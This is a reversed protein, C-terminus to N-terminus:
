HCRDGLHAATEALDAADVESDGNVDAGPDWNPDGPRTGLASAVTALDRGDVDGDGDGDGPLGSDCPSASLTLGIQFDGAGQVALTVTKSVAGDPSRFTLRDTEVTVEYPVRSSGREVFAADPWSPRIATEGDEFDCYGSPCLIQHLGFHQTVPAVGQVPGGRPDFAFAYALRGGDDEFLAYVRDNSLLYEEEGDLDLDVAQARPAPPVEGRAAAAAWRAAAVLANVHGLYNARLKAAPHLYPGGLDGGPPVGGPYHTGSHLTQEEVALLYALWALRTLPGDPAEADLARLRALTEHVLSGPTGDEGLPRGSPIPAGGRLFPVYDRWGEIPHGAPILPSHGDAPGGGYFQWFYANYHLDGELPFRELPETEALGLDGWDVPTWGRALVQGPTLVEIWPHEAIWRLNAQVVEPHAWPTLQFDGGITFFKEPDPDLALDILNRRWQLHLGGDTGLYLDYESPFVYAGWREDWAFGQYNGTRTDFLATLGRVRHPKKASEIRRRVAEPDSGDAIWGDLWYRFRDWGYVASYGAERVRDLDGARVMGEYPCFVASEPLELGRRLERGLALTRADVDDPQWPMFYGYTLTDLSELLGRRALDRLRESIGLYELGPLIELRLDALTLPVGYTEVADLLYRTGRRRGPYHAPDVAYGDYWDVAAPGYGAFVNAFVLLLHARGPAVADVAVPDTRDAVRTEGDPASLVQLRCPSGGEDPLVERALSVEVTDLAPDYRVQPAPALPRYAEDLVRVDQADGVVVLREWDLDADFGEAGQALARRGGPRCDLALYLDDAAEGALDQLDVRFVLHEADERSYVAVLDRAPPVPHGEAGLDGWPDLARLTEATWPTDYASGTAARLFLLLLVTALPAWM